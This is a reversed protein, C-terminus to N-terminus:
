DEEIEKTEHIEQNEEIVALEDKKKRRFVKGFGTKTKSYAGGIAGAVRKTPSVFVKNAASKIGFKAAEKLAMNAYKMWSEEGRKIRDLREVLEEFPPLFEYRYLEPSAYIRFKNSAVYNVIFFIMLCPIVILALKDKLYVLENTVFVDGFVNYFVDNDIILQLFTVHYTLILGMVTLLVGLPSM